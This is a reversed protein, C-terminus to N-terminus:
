SAQSINVGVSILLVAAFGRWTFGAITYVGSAILAHAIVLRATAASPANVM